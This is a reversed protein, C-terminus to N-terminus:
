VDTIPQDYVKMTAMLGNGYSGGASYGNVYVTTLTDTATWGASHSKEEAADIYFRIHKGSKIATSADWQLAIVHELTPNLIASFDTDVVGGVSNYLGYYVRENTSWYLRRNNVAGGGFASGLYSGLHVAAAERVQVFEIEGIEAKVLVGAAATARYDCQAVTTTGGTTYIPTLTYWASLTALAVCLIEGSTDIEVRFGLSICGVPTTFSLRKFGEDAWDDTATFAVADIEAGNSIDYAILRGTVDTGMTSHRKVFAGLTYVTSATVVVQHQIYGNNATATLKRAERFGRPSDNLDAKNASPTVNTMTWTTEVEESESLLTSRAMSSRLGMKYPNTLAGNWGIPLKNADWGGVKGAAVRDWIMSAHTKTTLPTPSPDNGHTWFLPAYTGAWNAAIDEADAGSWKAFYAVQGPFSGTYSEGIAFKSANSISNAGCANTPDSGLDTILGVNDGGARTVFALAYHWAGDRHEQAVRATSIAVGDAVYFDLLNTFAFMFIGPNGAGSGNKKTIIGGTADKSVRFMILYAFAGTTEDHVTSNAAEARDTNKDVFEIAKDGAVANLDATDRGQLALNVALDASGVLDNVTGSGAAENFTNITDPAPAGMATWDAALPKDQTVPVTWDGDFLATPPATGPVPLFKSFQNRM